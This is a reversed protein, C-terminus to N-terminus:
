KRKWDEWARVRENQAEWALYLFYLFAGFILIFGVCVLANNQRLLLYGLGGISFVTLLGRGVRNSYEPNSYGPPM